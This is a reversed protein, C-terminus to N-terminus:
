LTRWAGQVGERGARVQSITCGEVMESAWLHWTGDAAQIANGGWSTLAPGDTSANHGYAPADPAPEFVLVDCREGTWPWACACTVMHCEGNLSCDADTACPSAACWLLLLLTLRCLAHAMPPTRSTASLPLSALGIRVFFFDVFIPLKM